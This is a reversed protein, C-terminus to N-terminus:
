EASSLIETGNKFLFNISGDPLVIGKEILALWMKEDWSDLAVGCLQADFLFFGRIFRPFILILIKKYLLGQIRSIQCVATLGDPM